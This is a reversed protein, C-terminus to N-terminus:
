YEDDYDLDYDKDDLDSHIYEYEEFYCDMCQFWKGEHASDKILYSEESKIIDKHCQGCIIEEKM